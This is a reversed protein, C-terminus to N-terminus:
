WRFGLGFWVARAPGYVWQRQDTIPNDPIGTLEFSRSDPIIDINKRDLLNRIEIFVSPKIRGTQGSVPIDVRSDLRIHWSGFRVPPVQDINVTEGVEATSTSRYPVGSQIHGVTTIVFGSPFRFAGIASLWQRRNWYLNIRRDFTTYDGPQVPTGPQSSWDAPSVGGLDKLYLYSLRGWFRVRSKGLRLSPRILTVEIGSQKQFGANLRGWYGSYNSITQPLVDPGFVPIYREANRYFTTIDVSFRRDYLGLGGELTTKRQPHLHINSRTTYVSPASDALTYLAEFDASQYATSFTMHATIRDSPYAVTFSPSILHIPEVSGSSAILLQRIHNQVTRNDGLTQYIDRRRSTGPAYGDYRLGLEIVTDGFRFRDHLFVGIELPQLSLDFAFPVLDPRWFERHSLDHYATEVGASMEHNTMSTFTFKAGLQYTQYTRHSSFVAPMSAPLVGDVFIAPIVTTPRQLRQLDTPENTGQRALVRMYIHYSRSASIRGTTSLELGGTRARWPNIEDLIYRSRDTYITNNPRLHWRNDLGLLKFSIIQGPKVRVTLGSLIEFRTTQQNPFPGWKEMYRGDLRYGTRGTEGLTRKLSVYVTQSNKTTGSGDYHYDDVVEPFLPNWAPNDKGTRIINRLIQDDSFPQFVNAGFHNLPTLTREYRLFGKTSRDSSTESLPQERGAHRAALTDALFM